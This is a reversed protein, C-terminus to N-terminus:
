SPQPSKTLILQTQQLSVYMGLTLPKICGSSVEGEQFEGFLLIISAPAETHQSVVHWVAELKCRTIDGCMWEQWLRSSLCHPIIDQNWLSGFVPACIM